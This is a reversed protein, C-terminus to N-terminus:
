PPKADAGLRRADNVAIVTLTSRRGRLEIKERPFGSLAAGAAQIVPESVVLQVGFEKTLAELRSATNVTDGVATLSVAAGYGMEGVIVPGSHIGIGIRLPEPLDGRLVANMEALRESMRRAADLARRSGEAPGKEIGFLAMVGDGIFKDLRGGAAEVAEGMARFYQNLLFVVDYPLRNESLSTFGRIDAFLIAIEREEGQLYGPRRAAATADATPALLPAVEVDATPRTQCALRVRPAAGIRALVRREAEGPPPLDEVGASVRVRCTSCRGRGGCVSAHPIGAARSVDLISTGAFAAVRRGSPYTVRVTGKRRDWANRLQRAVLALVLLSLYVALFLRFVRDLRERGAQDSTGAAALLAQLWQPDEALRRVELGAVMFGLLGVLPLVIALGYTLPLWRAYWSKLRLWFHLGICGHGWAVLVLAVHRPLLAPDLIWYVYLVYAYSDVTGLLEHAVRTGFVHQVALLPIALGFLLQAWEWAPMALRRRQYLAWFALGAHVLLAGYLWLTAPLSRWFALFVERGAEVAPLSVLGLAHNIMHTTLFFFLTIGSILRLRRIM